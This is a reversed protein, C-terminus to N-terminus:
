VTTPFLGRAATDSSLTPAEKRSQPAHSLSPLVRHRPEDLEGLEVIVREIGVCRALQGLDVGSATLRRVGRMQEGRADGRDPGGAVAEPEPELERLPAAIEGVGSTVLLSQEDQAFRDVHPCRDAALV